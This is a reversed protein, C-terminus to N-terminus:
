VISILEGNKKIFGEEMLENLAKEVKIPEREIYVVLSEFDLEKKKDLERLIAGRIQRHSGEFKSQKTHHVSKRSPNKFQSKLVVGYDMLAYYWERPNIMDVTQQIFPYLEKDSVKEKDKFFSHIYVARINTEIFITPSNFAFACISGATNPGIGPFNVLIEPDNPLLGNFEAVVKQATQQLFKARRNYGLGQWISLVDRLPAAALSQFDPFETIWLEYKPAVRYTQTQQLMIESVLVKYPDNVNRWDFHRGNNKYFAWILSQFSRIQSNILKMKLGTPM